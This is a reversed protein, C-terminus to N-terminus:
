ENVLGDSCDIFIFITIIGVSDKNSVLCVERQFVFPVISFWLWDFYLTKSGLGLPYM